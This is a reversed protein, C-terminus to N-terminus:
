TKVLRPTPAWRLRAEEVSWLRKGLRGSVENHLAVTWAFYGDGWVPPLVLLQQWFHGRCEGCPLGNAFQMLWARDDDRVGLARRHLKAWWLATDQQMELPWPSAGTPALSAAAPAYTRPTRHPRGALSM